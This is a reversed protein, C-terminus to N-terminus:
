YKEEQQYNNIEALFIEVPLQEVRKGNKIELVKNGEDTIIMKCFLLNMQPTRIEKEIM